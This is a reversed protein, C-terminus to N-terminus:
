EHPRPRQKRGYIPASYGSQHPRDEPPDVSGEPEDWWQEQEQVAPMQPERKDSAPEKGGQGQEGQDAARSIIHPDDWYQGVENWERQQEEDYAQQEQEFREVQEENPPGFIVSVAERYLRDSDPLHSIRTLAQDQGPSEVIFTGYNLIRGVLPKEYSMDTVKSVPMMDVRITLLGTRMLLRRDTVEFYTHYWELLRFGLNAGAILIVVGVALAARSDGAGGLWIALLLVGAMIAVPQWVVIWHLRTSVISVEDQLLYNQGPRWSRFRAM